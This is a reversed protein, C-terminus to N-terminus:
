PTCTRRPIIHPLVISWPFLDTHTLQYAPGAVPWSLERASPAPVLPSRSVLVLLGLVTALVTALLVSSPVDAIAAVCQRCVGGLSDAM